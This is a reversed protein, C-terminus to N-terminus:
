GLVLPLVVFLLLMWVAVVQRAVTDQRSGKRIRQEDREKRHGWGHAMAYANAELVKEGIGAKTNGNM